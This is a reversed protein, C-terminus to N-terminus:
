AALAHAHERIVQKREADTNCVARLIALTIRERTQADGPSYANFNSGKREKPFDVYFKGSETFVKVQMNNLYLQAISHEGVTIHLKGSVYGLFISKEHVKVNGRVTSGDKSESLKFSYKLTAM